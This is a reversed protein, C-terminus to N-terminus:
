NVIKWVKMCLSTLSFVRGLGVVALLSWVGRVRVWRAKWIRNAALAIFYEERLDGVTPVILSEFEKRSLLFESCKIVLHGPPENLPLTSIKAFAGPVMTVSIAMLSSYYILWGWSSGNLYSHAVNFMGFGVSPFVFLKSRTLRFAFQHLSGSYYNLNSM